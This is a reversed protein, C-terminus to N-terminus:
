FDSVSLSQARFMTLGNTLIQLAHFEGIEPKTYMCLGLMTEARYRGLIIM